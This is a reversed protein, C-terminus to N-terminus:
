TGARGPEPRMAASRRLAREVKEGLATLTFPKQLFDLAGADLLSQAGGDISHGSIILVAVRPNVERLAAFIERGSLNPLILDLIVLDIERWIEQYRAIAEAGDACAIVEYGLRDLIAIAVERVSEGDDVLLLRAPGPTPRAEGPEGEAVESAPHLPLHIRFTSGQGPRSTATIAGSHNKVTGYVAALGLGTGKGIPKTTFFPEFIHKLVREDIGEGTDKVEIQIYRGAPLEEASFSPDQRDLTVLETAFTLEGGGPMADRANLALNLLANQIQSPDGQTSAPGSHLAQKIVIRKDISHKLMEAVEGIVRHIDVAQTRYKGKRAFANLQNILDASRSAARAIIDISENMSALESRGGLGEDRIREKLLDASGMIAMLQNNFDHAIGGAMQGLAQLKENQHIQEQERTKQTVDTIIVLTAALGGYTIPHRKVEVRRREGGLMVSTSGIAEDSREFLPRVGESPGDAFLEDLRKGIIEQPTKGLWHANRDNTFLFTGRHDLVSIMELSANILARYNEESQRKLDELREVYDSIAATMETLSTALDGLEDKADRELAINPERKAIRAAADKLRLMRLGFVKRFAFLIALMCCLVCLTTLGINVLLIRNIIKETGQTEVAYFLVWNWPQFYRTGYALTRGNTFSGESRHAPNAEIEAVIERAKPTFSTTRSANSSFVLEGDKSLVLFCGYNSDSGRGLEALAEQQYQMVFSQVEDMKMKRLLAVRRQLTQELRADLVVDIYHDTNAHIIKRSSYFSWLSLSLFGLLLIPLTILFLKNQVRM